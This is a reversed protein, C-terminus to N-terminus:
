LVSKATGSPIGDPFTEKLFDHEETEIDFLDLNDIWDHTECLSMYECPYFAMYYHVYPSCGTMDKPFLDIGNLYDDEMELLMAGTRRLWQLNDELLHDPVTIPQTLNETKKKDVLMVELMVGKVDIGYIRAVMTYTLTQPYMAHVEFLQQNLRSATKLEGVYLDSSDRHVCPFDIRGVLPVDLGIDIAWNLEYDSTKDDTPIGGEPPPVLQYISRGHFHTEIFHAISARAREINRKPDFLDKTDDAEQLAKEMLKAQIPNWVSRFADMAADLDGTVLAVPIAKHMATGYEPAISIGPSRVGCKQYFYRRPCRAFQILTSVSLYKRRQYKVEM